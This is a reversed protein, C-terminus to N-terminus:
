KIVGLRRLTECVTEPKRKYIVRITTQTESYHATHADDTKLHALIEAKTPRKGNAKYKRSPKYKRSELLYGADRMADTYRM